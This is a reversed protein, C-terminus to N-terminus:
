APKPQRDAPRVDGGVTGLLVILVAVALAPVAIILMIAQLSLTTGLALGGITPFVIGGIRGTAGAWGIGSSRMEPPYGLTALTNIGTQGGVQCFNWVILGLVFAATGAPLYGLSALAVADIVFFAAILVHPNLKDMLRGMTLTGLAGGLFGIMMYKAFEQIPLGGLEQFYTPLWNALLAINGMALFCASFLILTKLRYTGSFMALPGLKEVPRASEGLHFIEGGTIGAAPDIRRIAEGIRPDTPNRTV